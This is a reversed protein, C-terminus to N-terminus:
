PQLISLAAQFYKQMLEAQKKDAEGRKGVVRLVFYALMMKTADEVARGLDSLTGDSNRWSEDGAEHDEKKQENWVFLEEILWQEGRKMRKVHAPSFSDQLAHLGDGLRVGAEDTLADSLLAFSGTFLTVAEYVPGFVKKLGAQYASFQPQGKNAMFHTAQGTQSLLVHGLKTDSYQEITIDTLVVNAPLKKLLLLLKYRVLSTKPPMFDRNSSFDSVADGTMNWHGTSNWALMPGPVSLNKWDCVSNLFRDLDGDKAARSKTAAGNKALAAAHDNVGLTGPTDGLPGDDNMGLTGRARLASGLNNQGTPGAIRSM